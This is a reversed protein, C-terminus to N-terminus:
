GGAPWWEPDPPALIGKEIAISYLLSFCGILTGEYGNALGEWSHFERGTGVGGSFYGAAYGEEMEDAMRRANEKLGYLSLARLYYTAPWASLSGDTYTEFTPQVTGIIQPLIHDGPDLPLLNFPIGLRASAAGNANRLKELNILAQRATEPALLGFAIAMGNLYTFAYDHLQGDRSRWGAVWGTKPNLFERAYAVQIGHAAERSRQSLGPQHLEKFLAAANRFARYCFANVYADLHGFGVVDMSNCSWRFSGSNGSLDRCVVLGNDSLTGLMREVVECLGAEIRALWAPDAKAQHLRGAACVLAPDSDLYLNRWYGYGGGDALATEITYRGLALPDPGNAPPRTMSVLEMPAAQSLHCNTSVANNAFGRFEPRFCSFTTAWHRQLAESPAPAGPPSSPELNTVAMEFAASHKGQPVVLCQSLDQPAALVLGGTNANIVRYSEVQLGALAPDGALLRLSLCGAGDTAFFAPLHARGNRGPQADPVVAAGTSGATADWALRWAETELAALDHGATQTLELLMREPEVTFVADISFGNFCHLNRYSIQNGQVSVEGTWQQSGYELDLTRLLPGSLGGITRPIGFTTRTLLRNHAAQGQGLCDWGLHTLLPRHLSFCVSLQPGDFHLGFPTQRVQMGSPAAPRFEGITLGPLYPFQPVESAAPDLPEGFARIPDLAGFPVNFPGGNCEGHNPWTPHERDCEVRLHDSELGELEIVYPPDQLIAAFHTEMEPMSMAQSLGEGATRPDYPLDIERLTQWGHTARNLISLVLHSPHTPVAPVWRGYVSRPLELRQLRVPRMFRLYRVTTQANFDIGLRPHHMRRIGGHTIPYDGLLTVM